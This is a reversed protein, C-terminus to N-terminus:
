RWVILVGAPRIEAELGRRRELAALRVAHEEHRAREVDSLRDAAVLARRDFLGRQVPHSATTRSRLAKERAIESDVAAVHVRGAHKLWSRVDPVLDLLRPSIQRIAMLAVARIESANRPKGVDATAHLLVLREAVVTADGARAAVRMCAVLGPKLVGGARISSAVVTREATWHAGTQRLEHAAREADHRSEIAPPVTVSIPETQEEGLTDVGGIVTRAMRADDLLAALRDRAGLTAAIRALRRTVRAVVLDEATDRMVLTLAHVTRRQGIRDVRGIRQELRAPNWPLEYNVVLRCRHQLNLGESAADTALLIGGRDNFSQQVDGREAASMGGHMETAAPLAAALHCLTDRYETFVIAPEGRTRRLLRLLSRLKSDHPGAAAAAGILAALWRQERAGDAFGPTGLAYEPLDDDEVDDEDFLSLQRPVAAAGQLLALRRRLSREAAAPSSLARKRLITVALRAAEVDASAERWVERCYRELMRQLRYEVRTIGIAVFRHHRKRGDGIDERSRRFMVPPPEDDSARGLAAVSAFAAADGSYPTATISVVRRAHAAVAALAAYRETPAAAAHAEDVILLDWLHSTLSSAIDARKLFDVSVVYVGPPSWPSVDSPMDAVSGRLWAADAHICAVGFLSELEGAWQRRLGAPVAVLVRADRERELVDAVIWGAQVTKGLGVEDALFIRRTGAAMALAPELQYSLIEARVTRPRPVFPRRECAAEAITRWWV